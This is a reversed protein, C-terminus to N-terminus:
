MQQARNVGNSNFAQAAKITKSQEQHARYDGKDWEQKRTCWAGRRCCAWQIKSLSSGHYQKAGHQVIEQPVTCIEKHLLIVQPHMAVRPRCSGCFIGKPAQGRGDSM